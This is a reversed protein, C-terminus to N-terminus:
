LLKRRIFGFGALAVTGTLVLTGPEPVVSGGFAIRDGAAANIAALAAANLTITVYTGDDAPTVVVSGYAIGSGLDDYIDIRGTHGNELDFIGTTVDWLAYTLSGCQCQFGNGADGNALSPNYIQLVASSYTGAPIPFVLFDHADLDDGLCADSSGCVGALYNPNAWDHFGTQDYWGNWGGIPAQNDLLLYTWGIGPSFAFVAASTGAFSCATLAFALLALLLAAQKM